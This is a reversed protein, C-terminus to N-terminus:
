LHFPVDQPLTFQLCFLTLNISICRFLEREFFWTLQYVVCCCLKNKIHKLMITKYMLSVFCLGACVLVLAALRWIYNEHCECELIFLLLFKYQASTEIYRQFVLKLVYTCGNLVILCHIISSANMNTIGTGTHLSIFTLNNVCFLLIKTLFLTHKLSHVCAAVSIDKTNLDVHFLLMCKWYIYFETVFHFALFLLVLWM